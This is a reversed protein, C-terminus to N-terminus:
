GELEEELLARQAAIILEGLAKASDKKIASGKKFHVRASPIAIASTQKIGLFFAPDEGLWRCIKSFTELDPIKGNEVRSLTAPSVGVERAAGRIGMGARKDVIMSALRDIRISDM